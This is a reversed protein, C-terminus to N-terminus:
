ILWVVIKRRPGTCKNEYWKWASYWPVKHSPYCEFVQTNIDLKIELLISRSLPSSSRRLPKSMSNFFLLQPGAASHPPLQYWRGRNQAIAQMWCLSVHFYKSPVHTDLSTDEEQRSSKVESYKSRLYELLAKFCLSTNKPCRITM